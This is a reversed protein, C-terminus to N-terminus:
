SVRRYSALSFFMIVPKSFLFLILTFINGNTYTRLWYVEVVTYIGQKTQDVQDLKDVAKAVALKGESLNSLKIYCQAKRIYLKSQLEIPYGNSLSAEIDTLCEQM